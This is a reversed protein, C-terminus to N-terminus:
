TKPKLNFHRWIWWVGAAAIIAVILWDFTRFYGGISDWNEGFIVGVYALGFNWPASGLFTLLLFKKRPMKAIGAPFSIFTRVIPLLRSFFVVCAGCKKFWREALELDHENIFVFRGWKHIIKKGGFYGLEYSAWSGILNGVTGALVVLWFNLKGSAVLFGSFPMVIESPIPLNASEFAMLFGIGWYNAAGIVDISFEVIIELIDGPM